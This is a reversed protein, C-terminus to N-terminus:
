YCCETTGFKSSTGSAFGRLLRSTCFSGFCMRCSLLELALCCDRIVFLWFLAAAVSCCCLLMLKGEADEFTMPSHKGHAHKDSHKHGGDAHHKHHSDKADIDDEEDNHKHHKGKQSHKKNHKDHKDHHSALSRRAGPLQIFAVSQPSELSPDMGGASEPQDAAPELQRDAHKSDKSPRKGHHCSGGVKAAQFQVSLGDCRGEVSRM